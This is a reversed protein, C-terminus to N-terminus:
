YRYTLNVNDKNVNKNFEAKVGFFNDKSVGEPLDGNYEIWANPIGKSKEVLQKIKNIDLM